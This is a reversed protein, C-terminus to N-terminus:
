AKPPKDEAANKRRRLWDRVSNNWTGLFPLRIYEDLTGVNNRRAWANYERINDSYYRDGGGSAASREHTIHDIYGVHGEFIGKKQCARTLWWDITAAGCWLDPMDVSLYEDWIKNPIYYMDVGYTIDGSPVETRHFGHVIDRNEVDYPNRTLTVDSNCWIFADPGANQRAFKLIDGFKEMGAGAPYLVPDLGFAEISELLKAQAVRLRESRCPEIWQFVIPQKM